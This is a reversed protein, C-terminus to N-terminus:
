RILNRKGNGDSLFRKKFEEFTSVEPITGDLVNYGMNNPLVLTLLFQNLAGQCEGKIKKWVEEPVICSGKLTVLIVKKM